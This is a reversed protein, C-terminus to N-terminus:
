SFRFSTPYCDLARSNRTVRKEITLDSAAVAHNTDNTSLVGHSVISDNFEHVVLPREILIIITQCRSGIGRLEEVVSKRSEFFSHQDFSPRDNARRVMPLRFPDPLEHFFSIPVNVIIGYELRITGVPRCDKELNEITKYILIETFDISADLAIPDKACPACYAARPAFRIPRTAFNFM